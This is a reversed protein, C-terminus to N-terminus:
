FYDVPPKVMFFFMMKKTNNPRIKAGKEEQASVVTFTPASLSELVAGMKM